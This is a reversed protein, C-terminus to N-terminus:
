PILIRSPSPSTLTLNGYYSRINNNDRTVVTYLPLSDRPQTQSYNVEWIM